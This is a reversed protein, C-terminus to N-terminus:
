FFRGDSIGAGVLKHLAESDHTSAPSFLLAAHQFRAPLRCYPLRAYHSLCGRKERKRGKSSTLLQSGSSYEPHCRYPLILRCLRGPIRSGSVFEERGPREALSSDGHQPLADLLQRLFYPRPESKNQVWRVLTIPRIGMIDILRQEEQPDSVITGLLQRWTKPSQM